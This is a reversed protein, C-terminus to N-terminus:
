EKAHRTSSKPSEPNANGEGEARKAARSRPESSVEDKVLDDDRGGRASLHAKEGTVYGGDGWEATYPMWEPGGSDDRPLLEYDPILRPKIYSADYGTQYNGSKIGTDSRGENGGSRAHPAGKAMDHMAGRGEHERGDHHAGHEHRNHHGGKRV